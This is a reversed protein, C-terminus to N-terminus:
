INWIARIGNNVFKRVDSHMLHTRILHIIEASLEQATKHIHKFTRNNREYWLYYIAVALILKAIISNINGNGRLTSSAWQLLQLWQVTPWQITSHTSLTNWVAKAYTCQFFLHDHTEEERNCLQCTTNHTIGM